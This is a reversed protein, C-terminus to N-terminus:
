GVKVFEREIYDAAYARCVVDAYVSSTRYYRVGKINTLIDEIYLDYDSNNENKLVDGIEFKWQTESSVDKCDPIVEAVIDHTNGNRHEVTIGEKNAINIHENGKIVDWIYETKTIKDHEVRVVDGCRTVYQKEESLPFEVPKTKINSNQM